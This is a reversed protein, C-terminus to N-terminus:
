VLEDRIHERGIGCGTEVKNVLGGIGISSVHGGIGVDYGIEDKEALRGTGYWGGTVWILVKVSCFIGPCIIAPCFIGSCFIGSLIYRVFYVPCFMGPCFM